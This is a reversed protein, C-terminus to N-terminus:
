KILMLKQTKTFDGADIKIFYIGSPYKSANWSIEYYGSDYIQNSLIEIVRGKLNYIKLSVPLNYSTSFGINTIPNFPNPYVSHLKFKNSENLRIYQKSNTVKVEDIKYKNKTSFIKNDNPAVVLLNTINENTVYKSFLANDILEIEFELDHVLTMEIGGIYGDAYIFLSEDDLSIIAENADFSIVSIIINVIQLIDIINIIGDQNLDAYDEIENIGLIINVLIIIDSVNIEGDNNVDGFLPLSNNSFGPTPNDFLQWYYSADVERGYSIDPLQQGFSVFDILNFNTDFLAIEEGNSSLKFNTHLDGQGENDDAWILLYGEGYIDLNPLMWKDPISYDDTLFYEGMNITDNLNYYIEIWDDFEGYEDSSLSQNDALFENIKITKLEIDPIEFPYDEASYYYYAGMDNLLDNETIQFSPDGNNICPSNQDLEFNYISSDIFLPNSYLNAIGNIPETDSISYSINILSLEDDYISLSKSQSLITNVVDAFGGGSGENKEFCLISTDNNFFTNNTVSAYSSDKIAIGKSCGVFLNKEVNISSKQGVSIGKDTIHYIKNSVININNSSEGIDIGDSNTGSFNYIRNNKVIGDSVNDLDIADTDPANQGYFNSNEILAKGNKVNIFDCIYQSTISSNNINLYGGNIYVPFQIDDMELKDIILNSNISSIAGHHIMPDLGSSAGSIKLNSIISTDIDNNFCIAGWRSNEDSNHSIIEVPNQETGNVILKGEVLINGSQPMKIKVGENIILSIDSPIFIDNVASYEQNNLITNETIVEPIILENSVQFIATFTSDSICDYTIENPYLGNTWGVFQYGPRPQAEITISINKFYNQSEILNSIKVGNLKILGSELPQINVSIQVLSDLDFENIFQNQVTVNRNESFQNIEDLESLWNNMSSISGENGWREIHRPMELSINSSLSDVIEAIRNAHFTNNLHVASRQIFRDKFQECALLYNFLEYDEILNDLLNTYTNHINFGRDLDVILWQWKGNDLRPRWWERNHGWSTNAVFVTMIIHDIFSDINMLENLNDYNEPTNLNNNSVFDIMSEYHELDGEVVMLQTGSQTSTYELHDINNPDVNFNEAFYQKDFKERINYIGWYDGNLFLSSPKYAMYGCDMMGNVLSETMPDRILTEEWDDGGNRFVIRSFNAIQKNEFIQYNIYEDGFRNRTYITFPKQAKTWINLGGLRAGVNIKFKSEMNQSFYEITVPIERQKYENEYIGIDEDWLTEPEAILSIIPLSSYENIYYTSTHIDSPFKDSDFSRAKLITTNEIYIPSSYLNANSGPRSGDLTYYILESHNDTSLIVQQHSNYFGSELSPSVRGSINMINIGSNNNIYGPTPEALYTWGGDLRGYSVDSFQIDFLVSDVIEIENYRKGELSLDFSVDSSAPSVQHIEVAILNEGLNLNNSAIQYELFYDESDSSITSNAYTDYEVIGSPMNTRISEEGNIYIIAGDDRKIKLIIFEFDQSDEVFFSKRFYSTIYKEDEDLGYTLTTIEDGDGYGLEAYGTNWDSDNFSLQIWQLGLDEGSDLYKWEAGQSILISSEVQNAKSLYIEEGSSKLKFNTHLNITTFDDWPWYPRIYDEGPIENYDDAWLILFDQSNIQTGDPIKWKTLNSSDDTIFFNDLIIISDETNYLEIWDTYDDFDLMEPYITTNLALFENILISQSFLLNIFLKFIIIKM